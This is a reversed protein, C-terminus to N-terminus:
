LLNPADADGARRAAWRGISAFIAGIRERFFVIVVVLTAVHLIVDFLIPVEGLDLIDKTLALHGSSSVPLFETAGQIVGFM